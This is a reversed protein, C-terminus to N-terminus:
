LKSLEDIVEIINNFRGTKYMKKLIKIIDKKIELESMGYDSSVMSAIVRINMYLHRTRKNNKFYWKDNKIWLTFRTDTDNKKAGSIIDIFSQEYDKKIKTTSLLKTSITMPHM